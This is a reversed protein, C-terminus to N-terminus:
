FISLRLPLYLLFGTEDTAWSEGELLRCAVISNLLLNTTEDTAWSEGELVM